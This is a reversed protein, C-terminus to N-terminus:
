WCHPLENGRHSHSQDARMLRRQTVDSDKQLSDAIDQVSKGIGNPFGAHAMISGDNWWAALQQADERLHMEYLLIRINYGCKMIGRDGCIERVNQDDLCEPIFCQLSRSRLFRELDKTRSAPTSGARESHVSSGSDLSDVLEVVRANQKARNGSQKFINGCYHINTM